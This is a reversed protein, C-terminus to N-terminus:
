EKIKSLIELLEDYDYYEIEIKGKKNKLPHISVKTKLRDRYMGEIEYINPDKKTAKTLKTTQIPSNQKHFRSVSKELDRVSLNKKVAQDALTIMEKVPLSMLTRVQSMSLQNEVLKQKVESPAKLIRMMNAIYSRSKGLFDALQEQTLNKKNIITEYSQAEEMPTLDERQLNEILMMELLNENNHNKILAPIESLGALKAARLRREGAIIEYTVKGTISSKPNVIIPEIIGYNKISIALEQLKEEDFHNRPQYPHAEILEIQLLQYGEIKKVDAEIKNSITQEDQTSLPPQGIAEFLASLGRGLSKKQSKNNKGKM